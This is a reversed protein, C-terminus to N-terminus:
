VLDIDETSLHQHVPLSLVETATQAAQPTPDKGIQPHDAYCEYDHMLRPYYFGTGIGRETLHAAMAERGGVEPAVRVTYQHWVHHRGAPVTPLPLGAGAALGASVSGAKE